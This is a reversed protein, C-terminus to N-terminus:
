CRQCKPYCGGKQCNNDLFPQALLNTAIGRVATQIFREVFNQYQAAPAASNVTINLEALKTALLQTAEVRGADTRVVRLQVQQRLLCTRVHCIAKFLWTSNNSAPTLYAWAYGAAREVIVYALGM